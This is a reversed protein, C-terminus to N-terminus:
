MLHGQREREEGRRTTGKRERSLKAEVQMGNMWVSSYANMCFGPHVFSLFCACKDKPTQRLENLVITESHIWEEKHSFLIDDHIVIWTHWAEPSSLHNFASAVKRLRHEVM